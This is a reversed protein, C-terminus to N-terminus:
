KKMKRYLKKKEIEVKVKYKKKYGPKVKKSKRVKAKALRDIENEKWARKSRAERVKADVLKNEKVMKYASHIGKEELSDLYRNDDFDYLSICIGEMAVRGTRGSRHIYFEIDRPLEFNIVHSVGVIDIGRALIDTAVIYQFELQNIRRIYQKRQRYNLGGHFLLVNYAQDKMFHYVKEASEKTNCFVIALYPNVAHLVDSLIDLRPKEKTKIFYHDINLNAIEEPHVQISIPNNLYKRLFPIFREPITASFVMKRAQTLVGTLQSLEVIFHDDLAMDAEDIVLAQATYIKLANEKFVLDHIRGPTGIVIQPQKTKLQEITQDRDMGGTIVSIRVKKPSYAVLESAFRHIQLALDRTPAIIIAQVSENDEDLQDLIPLLFAHTKGSGTKAEVILDQKKEYLDIVKEQVDTLINFHIASLADNLYTKKFKKMLYRRQKKRM